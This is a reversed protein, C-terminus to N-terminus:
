GVLEWVSSNPKRMKRNKGLVIMFYINISYYGEKMLHKESNFAKDIELCNKPINFLEVPMTKM